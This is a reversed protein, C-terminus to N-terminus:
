LNAGPALLVSRDGTRTRYLMSIQQVLRGEDANSDEDMVVGRDLVDDCYGLALMGTAEDRLAKFARNCILTLDGIGTPDEESSESKLDADWILEGQLEWCEEDTSHMGFDENPEVSVFRLSLSPRDEKRPMRNRMHRFKIPTAGAYIDSFDAAAVVELAKVLLFAEPSM